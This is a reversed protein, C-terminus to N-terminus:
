SDGGAGGASRTVAPRQWEYVLDGRSNYFRVRNLVDAARHRLTDPNIRMRAMVREFLAPELMRDFNYGKTSERVQAAVETSDFRPVDKRMFDIAKSRVGRMLGDELEARAEAESTAPDTELQSAYMERGVTAGDSTTMRLDPGRGSPGAVRLGAAPGEATPSLLENFAVPLRVNDQLLARLDLPAQAPTADYPPTGALEVAVRIQAESALPAARAGSRLADGFERVQDGTLGPRLTLLRELLPLSEAVPLGTKAVFRDMVAVNKEGPRALFALLHPSEGLVDAHGGTRLRAAMPPPLTALFDDVPQKTIPPGAVGRAAGISHAAAEHAHTPTTPSAADDPPQDVTGSRSKSTGVPQGARGSQAPADFELHPETGVPFVADITGQWITADGAQMTASARFRMTGDAGAGLYTAGDLILVVQPRGSPEKSALMLETGGIHEYPLAIIHRAEGRIAAVQIDSPSSFVLAADLNHADSKAVLQRVDLRQGAQRQLRGEDIPHSHGISEVGAVASWDVAGHEGAVIVYKKGLKGLGWERSSPDFKGKSTYGFEALATVDGRMLRQMLRVGAEESAVHGVVANYGPEGAAIAAANERLGDPSFPDRDQTTRPLPAPETNDDHFVPAADDLTDDALRRNPHSEELESAILAQEVTLLSEFEAVVAQAHAIDGSRMAGNARVEVDLALTMAHARTRAGGRLGEALARFAKTHTAIHRGIAMAAGQAMWQSVLEDGNPPPTEYDRAMTYAHDTAAGIIMSLALEPLAVAFKKSHSSVTAVVKRWGSAAASVDDIMHEIKVFHIQVAHVALGTIANAAMVDLFSRKDGLAYKQGVSNVMVDAAAGAITGVTKATQAVELSEAGAVGARALWAGEAAGSVASAALNGALTMAITTLINALFLRTQAREATAAATQLREELRANELHDKIFGSMWDLAALKDSAIERRRQAEDDIESAKQEIIEVREQYGRVTAATVRALGRLDSVLEPITNSYRNIGGAFGDDLQDLGDATQRLQLELVRLHTRYGHERAEVLLEDRDLNSVKGGALVRKEMQSARRELRQQQRRAENGERKDLEGLVAVNEVNSDIVSRPRDLRQRQHLASAHAVAKRATDSRSTSRALAVVFGHVVEDSSDTLPQAFFAELEPMVQAVVAAQDMVARTLRAAAKDGGAGALETVWETTEAIAEDLGHLDASPYDLIREVVHIRAVRLKALSEAAVPILEGPARPPQDNRPDDVLHQLEALTKRLEHGLAPRAHPGVTLADALGYAASMAKDLAKADAKPLAGGHTHLADALSKVAGKVRVVDADPLAKSTALGLQALEVAESLATAATAVDGARGAVPEASRGGGEQRQVGPATPGDGAMQDLLSEASEGRTVADAVADAHQEYRDGAQGVGGYLQVGGRQQVVHAAEHAATHLDPAGAFAVDNGMAYARAGISTAAQAAASGVHARVGSVDHRGFSAQIQAEHPLAQGGGSIGTAAAGAVDQAPLLHLGFPDDAVLQVLEGGDAPAAPSSDEVKSAVPRQGGAVLRQTRTAKGPAVARAHERSSDGGIGPRDDGRERTM